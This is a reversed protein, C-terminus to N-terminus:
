LYFLLVRFLITPQILTFLSSVINCFNYGQFTNWNVFVPHIFYVCTFNFGDWYVNWYFYIFLCSRFAKQFLFSSNQYSWAESSLTKHVLSYEFYFPNSSTRVSLLLLFSLLLFFLLLPLLFFCLYLLLFILAGM